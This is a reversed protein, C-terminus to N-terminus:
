RGRRFSTVAPKPKNQIDQGKEVEPLRKHAVNNFTTIEDAIEDDPDVVVYIDTASDIRHNIGVTVTRPELDNPPEINPITQSGIHRGGSQPNGDYFAIKVNRVPKSGVNHIRAMLLNR